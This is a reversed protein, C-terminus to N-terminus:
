DTSIYCLMQREFSHNLLARGEVESMLVKGVNEELGRAVVSDAQGELSKEFHNVFALRCNVFTCSAVEPEQISLLSEGVSETETNEHKTTELEQELTHVSSQMQFIFIHFM